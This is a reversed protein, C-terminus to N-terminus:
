WITSPPDVCIVDFVVGPGSPSAGGGAINIIALSGNWSAVEAHVAGQLMASSRLIVHFEYNSVAQPALTLNQASGSAGLGGVSQATLNHALTVVDVSVTPSVSAVLGAARSRFASRLTATANFAM